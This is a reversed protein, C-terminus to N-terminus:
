VEQAIVVYDIYLTHADTSGTQNGISFHLDEDDPLSTNGAAISGCLLWDCYVYVAGTADVYFTYVRSTNDAMVAPDLNGITAASSDKVANFTMKTSAEAKSFFLGDSPASAIPSTDAINLGFHLEGDDVDDCEIRIEFWMKKGAVYRWPEGQLELINFDNDAIDTTSQLWGGAKSDAIKIVNATGTSTETLVWDGSTAAAQRPGNYSHFDNSYIRHGAIFGINQVAALPIGNLPHGSRDYLWTNSVERPIPM